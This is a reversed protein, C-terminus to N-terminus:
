CNVLFHHRDEFDPCQLPYERTVGGPVTKYFNEKIRADVGELETPVWQNWRTGPPNAKTFEAAAEEMSLKKIACLPTYVLGWGVAIVDDLPPVAENSLMERGEM